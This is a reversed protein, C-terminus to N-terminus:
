CPPAHNPDSLEKPIYKDLCLATGQNNVSLRFARNVRHTQVPVATVPDKLDSYSRNKEELVTWTLVRDFWNDAATKSAFYGSVKHVYNKFRLEAYQNGAEWFVCEFDTVWDYSNKAGPVQIFRVYDGSGRKPYNTPRVLMISLVVGQYKTLKEMNPVIPVCVEIVNTETKCAASNNVRAQEMILQERLENAFFAPLDVGEESTLTALQDEFRTGSLRNFLETIVASEYAIDGEVGPPYDERKIEDSGCLKFLDDKNINLRPQVAKCIDAHIYKQNVALIDIAAKLGQFTRGSYNITETEQVAYVPALSGDPNEKYECLLNTDLTGGINELFYSELNDIKDNTVDIQNGLIFRTNGIENMVQDNLSIILERYDPCEMTIYENNNIITTSEFDPIDISFVDQSGCHALSIFIKGNSWFGEGTLKSNECPSEFEQDPFFIYDSASVGDVSVTITASSDTLPDVRLSVNPDPRQYLIVVSDAQGNIELRIAFGSGDTPYAQLDFNVPFEFPYAVEQGQSHVTEITYRGDGYPVVRSVHRICGWENHDCNLGHADPVKANIHQNFNEALQDHDAQLQDHDVKLANFAAELSVVLFELNEIREQLEDCKEQTCFSPCNM